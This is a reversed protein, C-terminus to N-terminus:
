LTCGAHRDPEHEDGELLGTHNVTEGLKEQGEKAVVLRGRTGPNAQEPHKM